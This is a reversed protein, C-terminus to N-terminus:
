LIICFKHFCNSKIVHRSSSANLKSVKISYYILFDEFLTVFTRESTRHWNRCKKEVANTFFDSVGTTKFVKTISMVLTQSM